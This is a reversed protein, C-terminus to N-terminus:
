NIIIELKRTIKKEKPGNTIKPMRKRIELYNLVKYM